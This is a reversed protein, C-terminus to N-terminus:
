GNPDKLETTNRLRGNSRGRHLERLYVSAGPVIFLLLSSVAWTVRFPFALSTNLIWAVLIGGLLALVLAFFLILIELVNLRQITWRMAKRTDETRAKEAQRRKRDSRRAM